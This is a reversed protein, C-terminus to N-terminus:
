RCKHTWTVEFSNLLEIVTTFRPTETFRSSQKNTWDLLGSEHFCQWKPFVQGPILASTCDSLFWSLAKTVEQTCVSRLLVRLAWIIIIIYVGGGLSLCHLNSECYELIFCYQNFMCLWFWSKVHWKKAVKQENFILKIWVSIIQTLHSCLHPFMFSISNSHMMKCNLAQSFHKFLCEKASPMIRKLKQFVATILFTLSNM